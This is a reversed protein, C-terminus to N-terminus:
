SHTPTIAIVTIQNKDPGYCWFVRYAGPTLNQAYAEFVKGKKEYPHDLSTYEHTNLDPHKPNNALQDITRKVQKFLGEASTSKSKAKRKRAVLKAEADKKLQDYAEQAVETWKIEFM